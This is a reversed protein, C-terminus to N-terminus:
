LMEELSLVPSASVFEIVAAAMFKKKTRKKAEDIALSMKGAEGKIVWRQYIYVSQLNKMVLVRHCVKFKRM